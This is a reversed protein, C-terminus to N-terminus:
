ANPVSYLVEAFGAGAAPAGAITVLLAAASAGITTDQALDYLNALTATNDSTDMFMNTTGTIGLKITAGASYPTTVNLRADYVVANAPMATASSQSAATTIPLRIMYTVGAVSPAIDLWAAGTWVYMQNAALTITGGSFAATTVITNGTAAAIVAVVGAGSGDDWLLQGITANAGSTTVVYWQETASNNPLPNNGNFQLSVPIPKNATKDVYAKTTFDNDGVPTAGRHVAFASNAANKSELAAGNSNIGPGATGGIQFFTTITGLLKSFIGPPAAM